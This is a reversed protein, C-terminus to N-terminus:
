LFITDTINLKNKLSLQLLMKELQNTDLQDAGIQVGNILERSQTKNVNDIVVVFKDFIELQNLLMEIKVLRAQLNNLNEYFFGSFSVKKFQNCSYITETKETDIKDIKYVVNSDICLPKKLAVQLGMTIMLILFILGFPRHIYGM